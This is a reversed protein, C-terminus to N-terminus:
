THLMPKLHLRDITTFILNGLSREILEMGGRFFIFFEMHVNWVMGLSRM